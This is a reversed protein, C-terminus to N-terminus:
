GERLTVLDESRIEPISSDSGLELENENEQGIVNSGRLKKKKLHKTRM